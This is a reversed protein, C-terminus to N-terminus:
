PHQLKPKPHHPNQNAHHLVPDFDLPNVARFQDAVTMPSGHNYVEFPQPHTLFSALRAAERHFRGFDYPALIQTPASSPNSVDLLNADEAAKFMMIIMMRRLLAGASHPNEFGIKHNFTVMPIEGFDNLDESKVGYTNVGVSNITGRPTQGGHIALHITNAPFSAPAPRRRVPVPPVPAAVTALAGSARPAGSTGGSPPAGPAVVPTAAPAAPASPGSTRATKKAAQAKTQKQKQQKKNKLTPTTKAKKTKSTTKKPQPPTKTKTPTTLPTPTKTKSPSSKPKRPPSAPPASPPSSAGFAAQPPPPPGGTGPSPLPPAPLSKAKSAPPKVVTQFAKSAPNFIPDKPRSGMRAIVHTQQPTSPPFRLPYTARLRQVMEPITAQHTHLLQTFLKIPPDKHVWLLRSPFLPTHWDLFPIRVQIASVRANQEVAVYWNRQEIVNFSAQPKVVAPLKRNELIEYFEFVVSPDDFMSIDVTISEKAM